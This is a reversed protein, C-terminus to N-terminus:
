NGVAAIGLPRVASFLSNADGHYVTILRAAGDDFQPARHTKPTYDM